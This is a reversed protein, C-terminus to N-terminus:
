RDHALEAGLEGRARGFIATEEVLDGCARGLSTAVEVDDRITQHVLDLEHTLADDTDVLLEVAKAALHSFLEAPDVTAQETEFRAHDALRRRGDPPRSLTDAM